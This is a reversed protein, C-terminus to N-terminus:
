RRDWANDRPRDYLIDLIAKRLRPGCEDLCIAVQLSNSRRLLSLAYAALETDTRRRKKLRRFEGLVESTRSSSTTTLETTTAM